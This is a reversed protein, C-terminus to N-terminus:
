FPPEEGEFSPMWSMSTGTRVAHAHESEKEPWVIDPKPTLHEKPLIGWKLMWCELEIPIETTQMGIVM